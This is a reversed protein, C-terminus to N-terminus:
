GVIVFLASVFHNAGKLRVLRVDRIPTGAAWAEQIEQDLLYAYAAWVMEWPGSRECWAVCVEVADWADAGVQSEQLYTRGM